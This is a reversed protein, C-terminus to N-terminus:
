EGGVGLLALVGQVLENAIALGILTLPVVVVWSREHQRVVSVVGMGFAAVLGLVIGFMVASQWWPLGAGQEIMANFLFLLLISGAGTAASASGLRTSPLHIFGSHARRATHSM